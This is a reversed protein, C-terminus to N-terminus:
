VMRKLTVAGAVKSNMSQLQSSYDGEWRCRVGPAGWAGGGVFCRSPGPYGRASGM